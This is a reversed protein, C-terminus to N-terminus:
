IKVIKMHQCNYKSYWHQVCSVHFYICTTTTWDSLWTRSKAVEHVAARCAEIDKEMEWLKSFSMDMSNTIGDFWRIRQWGRRRRGEIKGLMLTKKILRSKADPPWHIAAESEADTRGIFIWSQNGKPIPNREYSLQYLLWMCHPLGRNLEQTLFIWQLLSLSGM